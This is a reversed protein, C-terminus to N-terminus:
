GRILETEGVTWAISTQRFKKCAERLHEKVNDPSYTTFVWAANQWPAVPNSFGSFHLEDAYHGIMSHTSKIFDCWDSQSLKDDSNGIQVTITKLKM